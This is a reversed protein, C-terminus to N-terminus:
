FVIKKMDFIKLEDINYKIMGNEYKFGCETEEPLQMVCKPTKDSKVCVEFPEVRRAKEGICYLVASVTMEGNDTFANIEVDEPADSSVTKEIGFVGDLLNVFVRGYHYPKEVCEIPLASWLVKGDGYEAAAMAPIDTMIGPPNSHISAFKVSDQDTYPLTLSALVCKGDIGEAIPATGDFNLPYKENFWGFAKEATSGAKPAIYVVRERTRGTIEAGFFERLLGRCDGGSIYLRGGRRVYEKLMDYAYGDEDTLCPAALLKYKGIDGWGGTVGCCINDKILQEAANVCGIHNTYKEGHANFKSHLSYYIGIDEVMDGTFYKEYKMEEDFVRGLRDYVRKDLTGVPDIADIALTAGHHAATLFAASLMADESKTMTHKALGPTCRSFMYEFPQNKSVNRYLKCTFSQGFLMDGYLDGGVYDCANLVGEALAATGSPLAAFAVNHEVSVDPRHSKVEDTVSQAFEGMWQRRKEIHLLWIPDSWDEKKPLEYGTESRFRGRCSECHCLKPWFLMDFFMGDFEFFDVMEKIQASVFARYERNNPCCLGYRGASSSFDLKVGDAKEPSVMSWEPHEEAARNNYILSYYGTVSIGNERCMHALRQMMDERGCFAKHMKGTKTPFYCLGVHSQFYLMANQVKARKLNDLYEGPSFESLFEDNWDDIHMDCLHRRYSNEYWM